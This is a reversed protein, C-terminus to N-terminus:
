RVVVKQGNTLIYIGPAPNMVRRGYLDFYILNGNADRGPENVIETTVEEVGSTIPQDNIDLEDSLGVLVATNASVVYTSVSGPLSGNPVGYDEHINDPVYSWVLDNSAASATTYNSPKIESVKDDNDDHLAYYTTSTDATTKTTSYKATEGDEIAIPSVAGLMGSDPYRTAAIQSNSMLKENGVPELSDISTMSWDSVSASETSTSTDATNGKRRTDSKLGTNETSSEPIGDMECIAKWNAETYKPLDSDKTSDYRNYLGYEEGPGYVIELEASECKAALIFPHFAKVVLRGDEDTYAGVHDDTMKTLDVTGDAAQAIGTYAAMQVDDGNM